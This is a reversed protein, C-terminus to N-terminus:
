ANRKVGIAAVNRKLARLEATERDVAKVRVTRTVHNAYHLTVYYLKERSKSKMRAGM